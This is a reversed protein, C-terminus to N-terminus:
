EGGNAVKKQVFDSGVQLMCPGYEVEHRIELIEMDSLEWGVGIVGDLCNSLNTGPGVLRV